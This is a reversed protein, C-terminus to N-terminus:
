PSTTTTINNNNNNSNNNSGIGKGDGFNKDNVNINDDCKSNDKMEGGGGRASYVSGNRLDLFREVAQGAPIVYRDDEDVLVNGILNAM